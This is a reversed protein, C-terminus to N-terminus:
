SGLSPTGTWGELRRTRQKSLESLGNCNGACMACERRQEKTCNGGPPISKEKDFAVEGPPHAGERLTQTQGLAGAAWPQGRQGHKSTSGM